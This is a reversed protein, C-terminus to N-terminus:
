RAAYCDRHLTVLGPQDLLTPEAARSSHIVREAVLFVATEYTGVALHCDACIRRAQEQTLQVL